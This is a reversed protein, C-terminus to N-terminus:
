EITKIRVNSNIGNNYNMFINLSLLQGFNVNNTQRCFEDPTIVRIMDDDVAVSTKCLSRSNLVAEIYYHYLKKM